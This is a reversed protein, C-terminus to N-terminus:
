LFPHFMLTLPCCVKNHKAMMHAKYFSGRSGLPIDLTWERAVMRAQESNTALCKKLLHRYITTLPEKQQPEEEQGWSAPAKRKGLICYICLV